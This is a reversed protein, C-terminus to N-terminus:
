RNELLSLLLGQYLEEYLLPVNVGKNVRYIAKGIM